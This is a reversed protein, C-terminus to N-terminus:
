LVQRGHMFGKATIGVVWPTSALPGRQLFALIQSYLFIPVLDAETLTTTLTVKTRGTMM